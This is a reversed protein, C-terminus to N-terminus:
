EGGTDDDEPEILSTIVAHSADEIWRDGFAKDLLDSFPISPWVPDYRLKSAPTVNYSKSTPSWRQKVWMKKAERLCYRTSEKPSKSSQKALYFFLTKDSTICLTIIAPMIYGTLEDPYEVTPDLFWTGEDDGGSIELIDVPLSKTPDPHARFWWQKDPTRVPISTQVSSSKVHSRDKAKKNRLKDEKSSEAPPPNVPVTHNAPLTVVDTQQSCVEPMLDEEEPNITRM